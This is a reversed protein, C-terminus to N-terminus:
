VPVDKLTSAAPGWGWKRMMGHVGTRIGNCLVRSQPDIYNLDM